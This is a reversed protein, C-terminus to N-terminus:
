FFEKDLWFRFFENKELVWFCFALFDISREFLGVGVSSRRPLVFLVAMGSGWGSAPWGEKQSGM